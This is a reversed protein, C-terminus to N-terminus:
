PFRKRLSKRLQKAARKPISQFAVTFVFVEKDPEKSSKITGQIAMTLICVCCERGDNLHEFGVIFVSCSRLFNLLLCLLVDNSLTM